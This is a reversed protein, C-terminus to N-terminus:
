YKISKFRFASYFRDETFEDSKHFTLSYEEILTEEYHAVVCLEVSYGKLFKCKQKWYKYFDYLWGLERPSNGMERVLVSVHGNYVTYPYIFDEKKFWYDIGPSLGRPDFFGDKIIKDFQQTIKEEVYTDVVVMGDSAKILFEVGDYKMYFWDDFHPSFDFLNDTYIEQKVIKAGPYYANVYDKMARKNQWATNQWPLLLNAHLINIGGVVLLILVGVICLKRLKKRRREDRLLDESLEPIIQTNEFGCRDCIIEGKPLIKNCQDCFYLKKM